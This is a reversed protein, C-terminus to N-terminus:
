PLRVLARRANIRLATFGSFGTTPDGSNILTNRIAMNSRAGNAWMLAALAAVHPAAMSTGSMTAYGHGRYLSLINKGPAALHVWSGFTSFSCRQDNEDTAAVAICGDCAAPYQKQSTGTNGAAAVIVIGHNWADTVADQLASSASSTGFSMTIVRAGNQEAWLIGQIVTLVDGQGSDAVVKGVLLRTNYGLSATGIGNDTLAAVIGATHTGHGNGDTASGTGTFNKSAAIQGALEPHTLDVGTDLSAVLVLPNGRTIGWAQPASIKPLEWQRGFYPDDSFLRVVYDPEAYVVDPEGRLVEMAAEVSVGKPLKVEDVGLSGLRKAIRAHLRHLIATSARPAPRFRVLVVGPVYEQGAAFAMSAVFALGTAFRITPNM